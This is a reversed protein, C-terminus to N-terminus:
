AATRISRLCIDRIRVAAPTPLISQGTQVSHLVASRLTHTLTGAKLRQGSGNRQETRTLPMFSYYGGVYITGDAAIVPYSLAREGMTYPSFDLEQTNWLMSGTPSIAFLRIPSGAIVYVTGNAGIASTYGIGVVSSDPSWRWKVTGEQGVTGGGGIAIAHAGSWGSEKSVTNKARARVEFTWSNSYAHSMSVTSGSAVYASWGSKTGDGWDFQISVNGGQPDVASTAFAYSISIDGSSPGTPVSPVGIQDNFLTCGQLLSPYDGLSCGALLLM